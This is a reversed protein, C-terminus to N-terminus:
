GRGTSAVTLARAQLPGVSQFRETGARLVVIEGPAHDLLWRVDEAPIGAGEPHAAAIVIRDFRESAIVQRLAHRFSRGRAIRADVPVGFRMARLEIADQVRLCASAHQPLTAHLPLTLSVRALFVPVFTAGEARALRLASDLAGASLGEAGFPFLVRGSGVLRRRSSRPRAGTLRGALVGLVAVVVVLGISLGTM